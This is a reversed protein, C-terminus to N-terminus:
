HFPELFKPCVLITKKMIANKERTSTAMEYLQNYNFVFILVILM